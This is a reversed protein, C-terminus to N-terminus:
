SPYTKQNHVLDTGSLPKLKFIGVAILKTDRNREIELPPSDAPLGVLTPLTTQLFDVLPTNSETKEPLNIIKLKKRRGCNELDDIKLQLQKVTREMTAICTGHAGHNDETVSVREEVEDMHKELDMVRNSLASLSSEVSTVSVKIESLAGDIIDLRTGVSEDMDNVRSAVSKIEAM